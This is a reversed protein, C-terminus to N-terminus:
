PNSPNSFMGGYSHLPKAIDIDEPNIFLAKALRGTLAMEVIVAAEAISELGLLADRMATDGGGSSGSLGDAKRLLIFKSDNAWPAVPLLSRLVEGGIIGTTIQPSLPPVEQDGKIIGEIAALFIHHIEDEKITMKLLTKRQEYAASNEALYGIGAVASLDISTAKLGKRHRYHALGNQFTNGAAYNAQGPNGIIGSTSSLMIFFDLSSPLLEHM